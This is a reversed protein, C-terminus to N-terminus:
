IKEYIKGARKLEEAVARRLREPELVEASAGYGLVWKKIEQFSCTRFGLIVSGDGPWEEVQSHHWRTEAVRVAVEPSFRVRVDMVERGVEVGWSDWFYRELSFDDPIGYPLDTLEIELFHNVSFPLICKRSRCFAVLYLADKRFALGYPDLVRDTVNGKNTRYKAKVSRRAALAESLIGVVKPDYIRERSSYSSFSVMLREAFDRQREPLAGLVKAVASEVFRRYVTDGLMAVLNRSLTLATTEARTLGIPKLGDEDELHYGRGRKRKIPFYVKLEGIYRLAHRESVEIRRALEKLTIGPCNEVLDLVEFARGLSTVSM